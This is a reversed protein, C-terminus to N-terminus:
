KKTKRREIAKKIMEDYEAEERIFLDEPVKYKKLLARYKEELDKRFVKLTLPNSVKLKFAAWEPLKAIWKLVAESDICVTDGMTRNNDFEASFKKKCLKETIYDILKVVHPDLEVDYKMTISGKEHTIPSENIDEDWRAVYYNIKM